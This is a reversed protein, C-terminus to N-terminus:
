EKFDIENHMGDCFPKNKSAGCRCLSCLEPNPAQRDDKDKLDFSIVCHLLDRYTVSLRVVPSASFRAFPLLYYKVLIRL